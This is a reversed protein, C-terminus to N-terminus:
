SNWLTYGNGEGLFRGWGPIFSADRVSCASEKIDSGSPMLMSIINKVIGIIYECM